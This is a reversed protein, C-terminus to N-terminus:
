VTPDTLLGYPDEYTEGRSSVVGAKQLYELLAKSGRAANRKHDMTTGATTIHTGGTEGDWAIIIVEDKNYERLIHEAASIPVPKYAM